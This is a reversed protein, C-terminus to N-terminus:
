DPLEDIWRDLEKRGTFVRSGSAQNSDERSLDPPVEGAKIKRHIGCRSRCEYTAKATRSARVNTGRGTVSSGCGFFGYIARHVDPAVELGIRTESASRASSGREKGM